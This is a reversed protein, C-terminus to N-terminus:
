SDKTIVGSLKLVTGLTDITILVFIAGFLFVLYVLLTTYEFGEIYKFLPSGLYGFFFFILLGFLMTMRKKIIGGTLKKRLKMLLFICTGMTIISLGAIVLNVIEM